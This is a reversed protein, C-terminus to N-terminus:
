NFPFRQGFKSRLFAEPDVGMQRALAYFLNQANGGSQNVLNVVQQMQPNQQIISNLMRQPNSANLYANVMGTLVDQNNQPTGQNLTQLIPNCNYTQQQPSNYM